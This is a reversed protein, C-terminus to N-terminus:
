VTVVNADIPMAIDIAHKANLKCKRFNFHTYFLSMYKKRNELIM